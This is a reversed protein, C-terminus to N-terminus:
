KGRARAHVMSVAFPNRGPVKRKPQSTNQKEGVTRGNQVRPHISAHASAKEDYHGCLTTVTASATHPGLPGAYRQAFTNKCM